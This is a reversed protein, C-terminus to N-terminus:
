AGGKIRFAAVYEIEVGRKRLNSITRNLAKAEDDPGDPANGYLADLLEDQPVAKGRARKLLAILAESLPGFNSRM